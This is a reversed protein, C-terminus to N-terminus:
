NCLLPRPEVPATVGSHLLASFTRVRKEASITAPKSPVAKTREDPSFAFVAGM